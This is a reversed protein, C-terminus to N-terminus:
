IGFPPLWAYIFKRKFSKSSLEHVNRVTKERVSVSSEYLTTTFFALIFEAPLPKWPRGSWWPDAWALPHVSSSSNISTDSGSPLRSSRRRKPEGTNVGADTPLARAMVTQDTDSTTGTSYPPFRPTPPIQYRHRYSRSWHKELVTWDSAEITIRKIEYMRRSM